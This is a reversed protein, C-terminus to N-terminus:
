VRAGRDRGRVFHVVAFIVALALLVHIMGSVAHFALSGIGWIVLLVLALTLLM